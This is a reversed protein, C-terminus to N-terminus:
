FHWAPRPGRRGTDAGRRHAPGWAARRRDQGAGAADGQHDGVAPRGARVSRRRNQADIEALRHRDFALTGRVLADVTAETADDWALALKVPDDVADTRLLDRLAVAHLIGITIGRGLSPNTCAWSDGLALVGTAVPAGDVVFRRHRDQLKAM